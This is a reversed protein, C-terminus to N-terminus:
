PIRPSKGAPWALASSIGGMRRLDTEPGTCNIIRAFVRTRITGNQRERYAVRVGGEVRQADLLRGAAIELRGELRMRQLRDHAQVPIRHRAVGWLHRCHQMFRRREEPTFAQWLAQTRPRLSDIVPEASVGFEGVKRVHELLLSVTQSLSPNLPLADIFGTYKFGGHRHPLMGFGHPSLSVIGGRYGAENLGFVSDVMTLGSGLILVPGAAGDGLGEVSSRAWPNRCYVQSEWVDANGIRPNRPLSNGTALVVYDCALAGGSRLKLSVRGPEDARTGIPLRMEAVQDDRQRLVCHSGATGATAVAEQWLCGLYAGYLARPLFANAVLGRDKGAYEPRGMVWALFHDPNEPLASMKAAVVNLVAQPSYPAYAIGKGVSSKDDILSVDVGIGSSQANKLLRYATMVGCFGGGIIAVSPIRQNEM